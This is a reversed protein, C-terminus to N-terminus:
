DFLLTSPFIFPNEMKGLTMSGNWEGTHIPSWKGYALDIFIGKKSADDKLTQNNSIPDIMGSAELEGSGLRLGVEFDDKLVATFGLRARYRFRHRDVTADDDYFFGEYRGRLDGNIKFATVWEPMGSKASYATTFNKDAEERLQNAEKVTLVGKEVLKDLLADESQATVVPSFLIAGVAGALILGALCPKKSSKTTINMTINM